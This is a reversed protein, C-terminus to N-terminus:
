LLLRAAAAGVAGPFGLVISTSVIQELSTGEMRGFTWLVYLSVLLVLAYGVVTFRLFLVWLSAGQAPETGGRFDVAYVFGQMIILSALALALAQWASMKFAILIMEETPAVNLSLFLAGAAMLFLEEGYSPDDKSKEDGSGSSLQSRALLAGIAGPVTQIAIKGVAERPSMGPTLEEFLALTVCAVLAAVFLAVFVDAVDDSWHATPRIGSLRSLGFLLPLGAVLLLALRLPEMTFGLWWMEMTMLMPLSFILAGATARGLGVLFEGTTPSVIVSSASAVM